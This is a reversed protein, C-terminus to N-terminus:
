YVNYKQENENGYMQENGDFYPQNYNGQNNGEGFYPQVGENQNAMVNIGEGSNRFPIGPLAQYVFPRMNNFVVKPWEQPYWGNPPQIKEQKM